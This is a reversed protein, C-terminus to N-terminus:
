QSGPKPKPKPATPPRSQPPSYRSATPPRSQPPSYRSAHVTARHRPAPPPPSSEELSRGRHLGSVAKEENPLAVGNSKYRRPAVGPAPPLKVTGDNNVNVYKHKVSRQPPIPSSTPSKDDQSSSRSYSAREAATVKLVHNEYGPPPGSVEKKPSVKIEDDVASYIADDATQEEDFEMMEYGRVRTKGGNKLTKELDEGLLTGYPDFAPGLRGYEETQPTAVKPSTERSRNLRGYEESQYGGVTGAGHGLRGYEEPQHGVTPTTVAHELRGYEEPQYGVTPTTVAHGLRGYEEPQHGVTPTTVAHELRGYEEPQHGSAGTNTPAGHGLHGYEEDLYTPPKNTHVLKGYEQRTPSDSLFHNLQGYPERPPSTRNHVSPPRSKTKASKDVQSYIPPTLERAGRPLPPSPKRRVGPENTSPGGPVEEYGGRTPPSPKRRVGPKNPALGGPVEEYGGRRPPSPKRRVGPENPAPGDPVEEYGGRRPPSPQQQRSVTDPDEYVSLANHRPINEALSTRLRHVNESHELLDPMGDISEPAPPLPRTPPQLSLFSVNIYYMYLVVEFGTNSKSASTYVLKTLLCFVVSHM